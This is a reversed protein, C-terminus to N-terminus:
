KTKQEAEELQEKLQQLLENGEAKSLTKSEAEIADFEAESVIRFRELMGADCLAHGQEDEGHIRRYPLSLVISEYLYQSLNLEGDAPHIWMIDGDYDTIEDSFKVTLQGDYRVPLALDALCRDCPVTVEGELHVDLVLMSASKQLDVMARVSGQTIDTEEFAAFFPTDMVFDFRHNGNSLSKWPISYTKLIDMDM